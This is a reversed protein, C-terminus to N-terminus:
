NQYELEDLVIAFFNSEREQFYKLEEKIIMNLNQRKSTKVNQRKSSGILGDKAMHFKLKFLIYM